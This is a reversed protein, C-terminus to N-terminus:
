QIKNQSVMKPVEGLWETVQPVPVYLIQGVPSEINQEFRQQDKDLSFIKFVPEGQLSKKYRIKENKKIRDQFVVWCIGGAAFVSFPCQVLVTAELVDNGETRCDESQCADLMEQCLLDM